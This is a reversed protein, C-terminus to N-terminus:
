VVLFRSHEIAISCSLRGPPRWPERYALYWLGLTVAAGFIIVM